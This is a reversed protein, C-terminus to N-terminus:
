GFHMQYKAGDSFLCVGTGQIPGTILYECQVNVGKPGYANAIGRRGSFHRANTGLVENHLRGFAAYRPWDADDLASAMLKSRRRDDAFATLREAVSEPPPVQDLLPAQRALATLAASHALVGALFARQEAPSAM